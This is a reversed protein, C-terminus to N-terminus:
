FKGKWSLRFEWLHTFTTLVITGKNQDSAGGVHLDCPCAYFRPRAPTFSLKCENKRASQVLVKRKMAISVGPFQYFTTLVIKM